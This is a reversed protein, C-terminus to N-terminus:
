SRPDTPAGSPVRLTPHTIPPCPDARRLALDAQICVETEPAPASRRPSPWDFGFQRRDVRTELRLRIRGGRANAADDVTGVAAVALTCHKITLRGDLEVHAGRRQIAGSRFLLEPHRRADFVFPSALFARLARDDTVVSAARASGVLTAAGASTVTLRADFREFRARLTEHRDGLSFSIASCARDAVWHGIPVVLAAPHADPRTMLTSISRRSARVARGTPCRLSGGASAGTMYRPYAGGIAYPRTPAPCQQVGGRAPVTASHARQPGLPLEDLAVALHREQAIRDRRRAVAAAADHDHLRRRPLTLRRQQARKAGVGRAGAHAYERRDPGLELAVEREPDDLLQELGLQSAVLRATVRPQERARRLQRALRELKAGDRVVGRVHREATQVPQVPQRGVEGVLLRERDHDVVGV